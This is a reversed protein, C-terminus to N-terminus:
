RDLIKVLTQLYILLIPDDLQLTHVNRRCFFDSILKKYYIQMEFYTKFKRSASEWAGEEEEGERDNGLRMNESTGFRVLHHEHKMM